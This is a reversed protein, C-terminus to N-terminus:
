DSEMMGEIADATRPLDATLLEYGSATVLVEDEIRVGLSEDPIYIGPEITIVMGAELPEHYLAADHVDLGVHHGVGHLFDDVFGAERLLEKAHENLDEHYVGPRVMEICAQQVRLVTEYVERQRENFKGNAPYTRTIDAAYGGYDAGIDVVVLDGDEITKDHDPYHLITSSYGSGVISPFGPRLSGGKKYETMILSEIWNEEVGPAISRAAVVHAKITSDIARRMRELERPEKISRMRPLLQYLGEVKSGPIRSAIKGYLEQERAQAADPHAPRNIVHMTNTTWLLRWLAGKASGTRGVSDFGTQERMGDNLPERDGTWKEKEPLLPALYLRHRFRTQEPALILAAGLESIGTLYYFDSDQRYGDRDEEGRSYLIAVGGGMEQMVKERRERFVEPPFPDPPPEAAHISRGPIASILCACLVIWRAVPKM